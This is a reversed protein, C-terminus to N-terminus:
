LAENEYVIGLTRSEQSLEREDFRLTPNASADLERLRDLRDHPTMPLNFRGANAHTLVMPTTVTSHKEPTAAVLLLGLDIIPNECCSLIAESFKVLSAQVPEFSSPSQQGDFRHRQDTEHIWFNNIGRFFISHSSTSAASDLQLEGLLVATREPSIMIDSGRLISLHSWSGLRGNTEIIERLEHPKSGSLQARYYPIKQAAFAPAMSEISDSSTDTSNLTIALVSLDFAGQQSLVSSLSYKVWPENNGVLVVFGVHPRSNAPKPSPHYRRLRM